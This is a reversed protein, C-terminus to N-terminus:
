LKLKPNHKFLCPVTTYKILGLLCSVLALKFVWTAKNFAVSKILLVLVAIIPVSCNCIKLKVFATDIAFCLLLAICHNTRLVNGQIAICKLNDLFLVLSKLVITYLLRILLDRLIVITNSFLVYCLNNFM